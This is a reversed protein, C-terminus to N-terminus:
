RAGIDIDEGKQGSDSVSMRQAKDRRKQSSIM